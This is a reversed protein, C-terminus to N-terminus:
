DPPLPSLSLNTRVQATNSINDPVFRGDSFCPVIFHYASIIIYKPKLTVANVGSRIELHHKLIIQFCMPFMGRVTSCLVPSLVSAPIGCHYPIFHYSIHYSQSSNLSFSRPSNSRAQTTRAFLVIVFFCLLFMLYGDMRRPCFLIRRGFARKSGNKKFRELSVLRLIIMPSTSSPASHVSRFTDKHTPTVVQPDVFETRHSPSPSHLPPIFSFSM